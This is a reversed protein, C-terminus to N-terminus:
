KGGGKPLDASTVQWWPQVRYTTKVDQKEDSWDPVAVPTIASRVQIREVTGGDFEHGLRLMVIRKIYRESLEGRLGVPKGKSDHWNSFFEWGRRLENQVTHSPALSGDIARGDMASLNVWRTVRASGDEQAVRARAHVAVNQQLPNPAFLKWNQEFEPYIYDDITQDHKKSITNDPAVHLFVMALHVAVAVMVVAVAIAVVARAPGSLTALGGQGSGSREADPAQRGQPEM